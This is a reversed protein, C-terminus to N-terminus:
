AWLKWENGTWVFTETDSWTSGSWRKVTPIKWDAGDWVGGIINPLQVRNSTTSTSDDANSATGAWSYIGGPELGEVIVNDSLETSNLNTGSVSVDAADTSSWRVRASTSDIAEAVISLTPKPLLTRASGTATDEGASNSATITYSYTRNSQLGNFTTSGSPQSSFVQGTDNRVVSVSTPARSGTSTDWSVEISDQDITSASISADPAQIDSQTTVTIDANTGTHFSTSSISGGHDYSVGNTAAVKFQISTSAPLGGIAVSTSSTSTAFQWGSGTNVLVRYLGVPIGGNDSPASWSLFVSNPGTASGSLSRPASPVTVLIFRAHLQRGSVTTGQRAYIVGGSGAYFRTSSTDGKSFGYYITDGAFKTLFPRDEETGRATRTVSDAYGDTGGSSNAIRMRVVGASDNTFYLYFNDIRIPRSSSGIAGTVNTSATSITYPSVLYEAFFGNNRIYTTSGLTFDRKAM